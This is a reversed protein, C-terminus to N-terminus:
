TIKFTSSGELKLKSTIEGVIRYKGKSMENIELSEQFIISEKPKLRLSELIMIFRKNKSWRWYEDNNKLVVFDYKQGSSFDLTVPLKGVNSIKISLQPKETQSYTEKDTMVQIHIKRKKNCM